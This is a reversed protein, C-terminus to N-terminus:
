YPQWREMDAGYRKRPRLKMPTSKRIPSLSKKRSSRMASALGKIPSASASISRQNPKKRPMMGEESQASLFPMLTDSFSKFSSVSESDDSKDSENMSLTKQRKGRLRDIIAEIGTMKSALMEKIITTLSAPYTQGDILLHDSHITVKPLRSLITIVQQVM